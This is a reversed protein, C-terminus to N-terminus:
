VKFDDKNFGQPQCPELVVKNDPKKFGENSITSKPDLWEYQSAIIEIFFRGDNIDKVELIRFWKLVGRWDEYIWNRPTIAHRKPTRITITHTPPQIQAIRYGYVALGKISDISARCKLLTNRTIKSSLDTTPEEIWDTITIRRNLRHNKM